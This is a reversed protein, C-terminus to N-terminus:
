RRVLYAVYCYYNEKGFQFNLFDKQFTMIKDLNTALISRTMLTGECEVLNYLLRGVLM